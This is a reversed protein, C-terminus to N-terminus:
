KEDACSVAIVQLFTAPITSYEIIRGMTGNDVKKM